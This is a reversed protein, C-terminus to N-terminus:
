DVASQSLASMLSSVYELRGERVAQFFTAYDESSLFFFSTPCLDIMVVESGKGM